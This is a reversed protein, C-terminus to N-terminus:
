FLLMVIVYLVGQSHALHSRTPRDGTAVTVRTSGPQNGKADSGGDSGEDSEIVRKKGRRVEGDSDESGPVPRLTCCLRAACVVEIMEVFLLEDVNTIM